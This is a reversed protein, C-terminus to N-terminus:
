TFTHFENQKANYMDYFGTEMKAVLDRHLVTNDLVVMDVALATSLLLTRTSMMALTVWLQMPSVSAPLLTM